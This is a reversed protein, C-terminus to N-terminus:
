IGSFVGNTLPWWLSVLVLNNLAHFAIVTKLSGTARYILCAVVAFVFVSGSGVFGYFHILTFLASSGIVAFLTSFRNQLSQFLFGRYVIEEVVPAVIVAIVLYFGFGLLGDYSSDARGWDHWGMQNAILIFIWDAILCLSFGGFVLRWHVPRNWGLVRALHSLRALSLQCLVLAPVAMAAITSLFYGVWQGFPSLSEAILSYPVFAFVAVLMGIFTFTVMLSPRFCKTIPSRPAPVKQFITTLTRKLCPLGALTFILLGVSGFVYWAFIRKTRDGSSELKSLIWSPQADAPFLKRLADRQWATLNDSPGNLYRFTEINLEEKELERIQKLTALGEPTLLDHDESKEFVARAEAYHQSPAPLGVVAVAWDPLSELQEYVVSALEFEREIAETHQAPDDFTFPSSMQSGIVILSWVFAVAAAAFIPIRTRSIKRYKSLLSRM